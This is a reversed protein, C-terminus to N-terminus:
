GSYRYQTANNFTLQKSPIFLKLRTGQQPSSEMTLDAGIIAARKRMNALGIGAHHNNDTFGKGNDMASLVIGNENGALEVSITTCQSHKLSNQLFEQLIRLVFSKVADSSELSPTNCEFNVECVRASRVKSCELKILQDLDSEVFGPNTLSRSLNRLDALSEDIIKAISKAQAAIKPEDRHIQQTYLFALTLQQGVNDHIERGIQQM